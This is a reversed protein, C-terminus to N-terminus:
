LSLCIFKEIYCQLINYANYQHACSGRGSVRLRMDRLMDTRRISLDHRWVGDSGGAARMRM